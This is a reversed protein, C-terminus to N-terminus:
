FIGAFYIRETYIKLRDKATDFGDTDGSLACIRMDSIEINVKEILEKTFFMENIAERDSFSRTLESCLVARESDSQAIDCKDLIETMDKSLIVSYTIEAIVAFILFVTLLTLLIANRKM